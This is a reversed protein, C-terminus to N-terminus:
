AKAAVISLNPVSVIIVARCLKGKFNYGEAYKGRFVSFLVAGNINCHIKYKEMIKEAM